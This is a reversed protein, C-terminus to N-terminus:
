ESGGSTSSAAAAASKAVVVMDLLLGLDEAVKPQAVWFRHVEQLTSCSAEIASRLLFQKTLASAKESNSTTELVFWGAPFYILQGPHLDAVHVQCGADIINALEKGSMGKLLTPLEAMKSEGKKALGLKTLAHALSAGSMCMVRTTGTHQHRLQDLFLPNFDFNSHMEGYGVLFTNSVTQQFSPVTPHIREAEPAVEDWSCSVVDSGMASLMPALIVGTKLFVASTPFNDEWRKLTEVVVSSEEGKMAKNLPSDRM